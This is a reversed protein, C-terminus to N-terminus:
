VKIRPFIHIGGCSVLEQLLSKSLCTRQYTASKEIAEDLGEVKLHTVLDALKIEKKSEAM